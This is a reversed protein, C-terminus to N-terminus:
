ESREEEGGRWADVQSRHHGDGADGDDHGDAHEVEEVPSGREGM